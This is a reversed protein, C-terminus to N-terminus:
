AMIGPMASKHDPFIPALDTVGMRRTLIEGLVDRYDTTIAL